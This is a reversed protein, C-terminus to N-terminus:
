KIEQLLKPLTETVYTRKFDAYMESDTMTARKKPYKKCSKLEKTEGTLKGLTAMVWVPLLASGLKDAPCLRSIEHNGKKALSSSHYRCLNHYHVGLEAVKDDVNGYKRFDHVDLHHWAWKAAWAPHLEGEPGDINPKGWYGWDHIAICLTEKANPLKRYLKVWAIFVMSPHLIFQHLGFLLSKTGIRM